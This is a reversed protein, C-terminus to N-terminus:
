SSSSKPPQCPPEIKLEGTEIAAKVRKVLDIARTAKEGTAIKDIIWIADQLDKLALEETQAVMAGRMLGMDQACAASEPAQAQPFSKRILNAVRPADEANALYGRAALTEAVADYIDSM